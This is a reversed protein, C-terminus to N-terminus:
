QKGGAFGIDINHVKYNTTVIVDLIQKFTSLGIM